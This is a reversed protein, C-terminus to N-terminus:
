FGSIDNATKEAINDYAKIVRQLSEFHRNAKILESMETIANVNSSEILGQHVTVDKAKDILNEAYENIFYSNGEKKLAHRDKFDVISLTSVKNDGLFIDGNLNVSLKGSGPVSIKRSEINEASGIGESRQSLIPYGQHNVLHGEKSLVFTGRRTARIGRPTLVEFFGKGNLAMDLSNGTAILQGQKFDTFSGHIDVKSSEAGYSRYFDEPSWEKNPLDIDTHGKDFVTLYEKFTMYDKKFGPTNANAMNNAISEVKKEQALAGSLPVWLGKM